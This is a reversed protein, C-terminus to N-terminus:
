GGIVGIVAHIRSVFARRATVGCFATVMTFVNFCFQVGFRIRPEEDDDARYDAWYFRAIDVRSSSHSSHPNFLSRMFYRKQFKGPCFRM